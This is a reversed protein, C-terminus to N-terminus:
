GPPIEGFGKLWRSPISLKFFKRPPGVSGPPPVGTGRNARIRMHAHPRAHVPPPSPCSPLPCGTPGPCPRHFTLIAGTIRDRLNYLPSVSYNLFRTAGSKLQVEALLNARSVGSELAERWATEAQALHKEGFLHELPLFQGRCLEIRLLREAQPSASLIQKKPSLILVGDGEPLDAFNDPTEAM